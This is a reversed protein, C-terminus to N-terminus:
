WARTELKAGASQAPTSREALAAAAALRQPWRKPASEGEGGGGTQSRRRLANSRGRPPAGKDHM